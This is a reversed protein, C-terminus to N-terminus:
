LVLNRNESFEYNVQCESRGAFAFPLVLMLAFLIFVEKSLDKCGLNSM